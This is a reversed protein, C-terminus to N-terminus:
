RKLEPAAPVRLASLVPLRLKGTAGQFSLNSWTNSM